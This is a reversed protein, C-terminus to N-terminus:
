INRKPKFHSEISQPGFLGMDAEDESRRLHVSIIAVAPSQIFSFTRNKVRRGRYGRLKFIVSLRVCLASSAGPLCSNEWKSRTKKDSSESAWRQSYISVCHAIIWANLTHQSRRARYLDFDLHDHVAALSFRSIFVNYEIRSALLCDSVFALVHACWGGFVYFAFLVFSREVHDVADCGRYAHTVRDVRFHMEIRWEIWAYADSGRKEM